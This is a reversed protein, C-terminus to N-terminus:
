TLDDGITEAGQEPMRDGPDLEAGTSRRSRGALKRWSLRLSLGATAAGALLAQFMVTASGGDIYAHAPAEVSALLLLSLPITRGIVRRAHM